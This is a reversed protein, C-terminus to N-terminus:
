RLNSECVRTLCSKCCADMKKLVIKTKVKSKKQLHFLKFVDHYWDQFISVHRNHLRSNQMTVESIPGAVLIPTTM